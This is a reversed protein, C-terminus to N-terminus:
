REASKEALGRALQLLKELAPLSAGADARTAMLLDIQPAEGELTRARVAQSCFARAYAPMLAYGMGAGVLNVAMLVNQVPYERGRQVGHADLWAHTLDHLSAAYKREPIVLTQGQLDDPSIETRTVLPHAQPLFAMLPERLVVEGRLSAHVPPRTFAVDIEGHLLAKEQEHTALSRLELNLDPFHLRLEPLILPFLRVEASPVFGIRLTGASTKAAQRARSVAVDAQQLIRQAEELFVRGAETLEVKRRNRLLLPCGIEEELNRIQESLSPQSTYIRRAANTFSLEEAVAIFYRLHRLEM